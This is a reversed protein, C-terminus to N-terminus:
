PAEDLATERNHQFDCGDPAAIIGVAGAAETARGTAPRSNPAKVVFEEEIGGCDGADSASVLL